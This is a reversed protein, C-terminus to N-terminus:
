GKLESERVKFLGGLESAWGEAKAQEKLGACVSKLEDVDRTQEIKQQADSPM